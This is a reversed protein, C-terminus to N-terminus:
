SSSLYLNVEGEYELLFISCFAGQPILLPQSYAQFIGLLNKHHGLMNLWSINDQWTVFLSQSGLVHSHCSTAEKQLKNVKNWGRVGGIRMRKEIFTQSLSSSTNWMIEQFLEVWSSVLHRFCQFWSNIQTAWADTLLISYYSLM